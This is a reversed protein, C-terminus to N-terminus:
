AAKGKAFKELTERYEPGNKVYNALFPDVDRYFEDVSMFHPFNYLGHFGFTNSVYEREFSFQRAVDIPAFKFGELTLQNRLVHCIVVDDPFANAFRQGEDWRQTLESVARILKRSRLSFGGNGVQFGERHWPWVAGIYDYELWEDRWKSGDLVFSDYQIVLVHSTDIFSLPFDATLTKDYCQKTPEILLYKLVSGFECKETSRHLAKATLHENDHWFCAITVDRLSM